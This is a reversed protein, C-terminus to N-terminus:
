RGAHGKATVFILTKPCSNWKAQTVLKVRWDDVFESWTELGTRLLIAIAAKRKADTAHLQHLCRPHAVHECRPASSNFNPAPM